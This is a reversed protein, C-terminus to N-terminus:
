GDLISVRVKSMSNTAFEFLYVVITSCHQVTIHTVFHYEYLFHFHLKKANLLPLLEFYVFVCEFCIVCCVSYDLDQEILLINHQDILLQIAQEAEM